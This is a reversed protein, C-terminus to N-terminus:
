TSPKSNNEAAVGLSIVHREPCLPLPPQTAFPPLNKGRKFKQRQRALSPLM